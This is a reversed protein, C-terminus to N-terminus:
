NIHKTPQFIDEFQQMFYNALEQAFLFQGFDSLHVHDWWLLGDDRHKRMIHHMDIVPIEYKLALNKMIEHNNLLSKRDFENPELVLCVEANQMALSILTDLHLKFANPDTDNSALNIIVHDSKLDFGFKRFTSLLEKVTLGAAGFNIIEFHADKSSLNLQRELISAFTRSHVSAGAGWTQSSGLLSIRQVGPLKPNLKLRSLKEDIIQKTEMHKPYAEWNTFFPNQHYLFQAYYIYYFSIIAIIIGLAMNFASTRYINSNTSYFFTLGLVLVVLVILVQFKWDTHVEFDDQFLESGDMSNLNFNDVFLRSGSDGKFGFANFIDCDVSFKAVNQNNILISMVGNNVELRCDNWGSGSDGAVAFEKKIIFKGVSDLKFYANKFEADTSIRVGELMGHQRSFYTLLHSNETMLFEFEIVPSNLSKRLFIEQHGHWSGLNLYGGALPTPTIMFSVAGPVGM